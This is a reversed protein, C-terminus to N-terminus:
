GGRQEFPADLRKTRVDDDFPINVPSTSATPSSIARLGVLPPKRRRIAAGIAGSSECPSLTATFPTHRVTM